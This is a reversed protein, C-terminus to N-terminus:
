KNTEVNFNSGLASQLASAVPVMQKEVRDAINQAEAFRGAFINTADPAGYRHEYDRTFGLLEVSLLSKVKTWNTAEAEKYGNLTIVVLGLQEEELRSQKTGSRYGFEYCVACAILAVVALTCM